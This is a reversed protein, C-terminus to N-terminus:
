RGVEVAEVPAPEPSQCAKYIAIAGICLVLLVVLLGAKRESYTAKREFEYCPPACPRVGDCSMPGFHVCQRCQTRTHKMM